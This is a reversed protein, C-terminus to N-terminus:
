RRSSRRAPSASWPRRSRRRDPRARHEPAGPNAPGPRGGVGGVAGASRAHRDGPRDRRQHDGEFAAPGEARRAPEDNVVTGPPRQDPVPNVREVVLGATVLASKAAEVELGDVVPVEAPCGGPCEGQSVVMQVVDNKKYSAGGEPSTRIVTDVPVGPDPALIPLVKVGAQQLISTAEVQDKGAVNPLKPTLFLVYIPIALAIIALLATPVWWPFRPVQRRKAQVMAAQGRVDTAVTGSFPHVQTRGFWKLPAAVVVPETATAGPALMGGFRTPTFTLEGQQDAMAVRVDLPGNGGNVVTLRHRGPARGRTMEPEITATMEDFRGVTLGGVVQGVVDAHM